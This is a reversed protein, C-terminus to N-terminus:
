IISTDAEPQSLKMGFLLPSIGKHLAEDAITDKVGSEVSVSAVSTCSASLEEPSDVSGSDSAESPRSTGASPIVSPSGGSRSSLPASEGSEESSGSMGGNAGCDPSSPGVEGVVCM